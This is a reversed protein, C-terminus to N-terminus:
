KEATNFTLFVSNKLRSTHIPLMFAGWLIM